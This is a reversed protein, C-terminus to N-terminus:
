WVGHRHAFAAYEACLNWYAMWQMLTCIRSSGRACSQNNGHGWELPKYM